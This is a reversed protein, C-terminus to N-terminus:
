PSAPTEKDDKVALVIAAALAIFVLPVLVRYAHGAIPESAPAPSPARPRDAAISPTSLALAASFALLRAFM